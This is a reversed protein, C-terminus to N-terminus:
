RASIGNGAATPLARCAPSPTRLEHSVTAVLDSKLRDLKMSDTIDSQVGIFNPTLVPTM